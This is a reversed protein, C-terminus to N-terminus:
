AYEDGTLNADQLSGESAPKVCASTTLWTFFSSEIRTQFRVIHLHWVWGLVLRYCGLQSTGQIRGETARHCSIQAVTIEKSSAAEADSVAMSSLIHMPSERVTMPNSGRLYDLRVSISFKPKQVRVTAAQIHHYCKSLLATELRKIRHQRNKQVANM